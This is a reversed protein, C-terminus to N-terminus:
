SYLNVDLLDVFLFLTAETAEGFNEEAISLAV